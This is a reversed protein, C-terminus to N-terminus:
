APRRRSPKKSATKEAETQAPQIPLVPVPDDDGFILWEKSKGPPAYKATVAVIALFAALTPENRDQVWESVASKSYARGRGKEAKGVLEGFEELTIRRGLKASLDLVVQQIRRGQGPLPL